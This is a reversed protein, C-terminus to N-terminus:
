DGSESLKCDLLPYLYSIPPYTPSPHITPHTSPFFPPLFAPLFSPSFLHIPPHTPPHLSPHPSLPCIPLHIPPYHIFTYILPHTLPYFSSYISPHTSPYTFPHIPLHISPYISSYVSPYILLHTPPYFSSYISLYVSSHTSPYTPPHISSYTLFSLIFTSATVWSLVYQSLSQCSCPPILANTLLPLLDLLFHNRSRLSFSLNPMPLLNIYESGKKQALCHVPYRM